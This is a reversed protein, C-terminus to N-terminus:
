LHNEGNSTQRKVNASVEGEARQWL